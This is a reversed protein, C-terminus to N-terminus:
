ASSTFARTSLAGSVETLEGDRGVVVPQVAVDVVHQLRGVADRERQLAATPQPSAALLTGVQRDLLCCPATRRAGVRADVQYRGNPLQNAFARGLRALHEHLLRIPTGSM